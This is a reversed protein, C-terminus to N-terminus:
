TPDNMDKVSWADQRLLMERKRILLNLYMRVDVALSLFIAKRERRERLSAFFETGVVAILAAFVAVLGAALSQWHDLLDPWTTFDWPLDTMTTTTM